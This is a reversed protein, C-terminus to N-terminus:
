LLLIKMESLSGQYEGEIRFRKNMWRTDPVAFREIGMPLDEFNRPGRYDRLKSLFSPNTADRFDILNCIEFVADGVRKIWPMSHGLSSDLAAAIRSLELIPLSREDQAKISAYAKQRVYTGWVVASGHVLLEWHPNNTMPEGRWYSRILDLYDPLVVGTAPDKRAVTIWDADAKTSAKATVGVEALNDSVFHAGWSLARRASERDPFFFLGRLRSVTDPFERLRVSEIILENALRVNGASSIIAALMFSPFRSDKTEFTDASYLIGRYTEWATIPHDIDLFTYASFEKM